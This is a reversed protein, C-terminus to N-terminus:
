ETIPLRAELADLYEHKGQDRVSGRSIKSFPNIRVIQGEAQYQEAIQDLSTDAPHIARARIRDILIQQQEKDEELSSPLDIQALKLHQWFADYEGLVIRQWSPWAKKLHEELFPTYETRWFYLKGQEYDLHLGSCPNIIDFLSPDDSLHKLILPLDQEILCLQYDIQVRSYRIGQADRVSILTEPFSNYYYAPDLNFDEAVRPKFERELPTFRELSRGLYRVISLIGEVAREIRWGPWAQQMLLHYYRVDYANNGFQGFWILVQQDLDILAGGECWVEDLWGTEPDVAPYQRVYEVAAEPGWFLDYHLTSAAWHDYFLEWKGQEVIVFNARTGM